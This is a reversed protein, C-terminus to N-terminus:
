VFAVPSSPSFIANDIAEPWSALLCAQSIPVCRDSGHRKELAPTYWMMISVEEDRSSLSIEGYSVIM